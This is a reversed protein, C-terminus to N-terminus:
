VSRRNKTSSRQGLNHLSSTPEVRKEQGSSLASALESLRFRWQRRCGAGLPYAPILGRRALDLLYRPKVSLFEAARHADVFPEPSTTRLIAGFTHRLIKVFDIGVAASPQLYMSAYLDQM